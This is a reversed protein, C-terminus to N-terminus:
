EVHVGGAAAGALGPVWRCIAATPELPVALTLNVGCECLCACVCVRLSFCVCVSVGDQDHVGNEIAAMVGM